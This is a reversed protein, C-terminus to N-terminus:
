IKYGEAEVIGNYPVKISIRKLFFTQQLMRIKKFVTLSSIAIENAYMTFTYKVKARMFAIWETYFTVVTGETGHFGLCFDSLKTITNDRSYNGATSFPYTVTGTDDNQLGFYFMIKGACPYTKDDMHATEDFNSGSGSDVFSRGLLSFQFSVVPISWKYLPGGVVPIFDVNGAPSLGISVSNSNEEYYENINFGLFKWAGITKQKYFSNQNRVYYVADVSDTVSALDAYVDVEGSIDAPKMREPLNGTVFDDDPFDYRLSLGKSETISKSVVPSIEANSIDIYDQDALITKKKTFVAKRETESFVFSGCFIKCLDNLYDEILIKNVHNKPTITTADDYVTAFSGYYRWKNISFNNLLYTKIFDADDIVDGTLTYGCATFIRQLIWYNYFMPVIYNVRDVSDDADTYDYKDPSSWIAPYTPTFAVQWFNVCGFPRANFNYDLPGNYIKERDQMDEVIATSAVMPFCFPKDTIVGNTVDTAYLCANSTNVTGGYDTITFDDGLDIDSILKGKILSYFLGEQGVINGQMKGMAINFDYTLKDIYLLAKRRLGLFEWTIEFKFFEDQTNIEQLNGFIKRNKETLPFSFPYSYEGRVIEDEFLNSNSEYAISQSEEMDILEENVWIKIAM